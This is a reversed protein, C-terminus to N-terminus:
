DYTIGPAWRKVEWRDEWVILGTSLDVLEYACHYLDSRGGPSHSKLGGGATNTLATFEATLLHTPNMRLGYPEKSVGLEEAVMDWREPPIIWILNRMRGVDSQALLSRLRALYLWKEREPIIQNTHNVVRDFSIVWAPDSTTREGILEDSTFSAAMKGTMAM